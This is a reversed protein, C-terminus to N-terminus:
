ADQGTPLSNWKKNDRDRARPETNPHRKAGRRRPLQDTRIANNQQKCLNRGFHPNVKRDSRAPLQTGFRSAQYSRYDLSNRRCAVYTVLVVESRPAFRLVLRNNPPNRQALKLIQAASGAM